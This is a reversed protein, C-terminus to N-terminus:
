PVFFRMEMRYGETRIVGRYRLANLLHVWYDLNGGIGLVLDSGGWPLAPPTIKAFVENFKAVPM